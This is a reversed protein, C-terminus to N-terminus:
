QQAVETLADLMAELAAVSIDGMHGIRFTADKWEGYGGGLTFGREKMAARLQETAMLPYLATVTASAHEPDSALKAFRRTREITLDRMRRHRAFRSKLTEVRVIDELQTALAYFHPLSPTSPV